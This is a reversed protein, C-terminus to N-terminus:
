YEYDAVLVVTADALTTSYGVPFTIIGGVLTYDLGRKLRLGNLSLRLSSAPSPTNALTYVLLSVTAPTEDYSRNYPSNSSPAAGPPRFVTQAGVILAGAIVVCALWGPIRGLINM